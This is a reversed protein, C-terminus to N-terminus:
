LTKIIVIFTVTMVIFNLKMSQGCDPDNGCISFDSEFEIDEFNFQMRNWEICKCSANDDYLIKVSKLNRFKRRIARYSDFEYCTKQQFELRVLNSFKSLEEFDTALPNKSLSLEIFNGGNVHRFVDLSTLNTNTLNLKRLAALHRIFKENTAYDINKNESLNLEDLSSFAILQNPDKLQNSGINLSQISKVFNKM